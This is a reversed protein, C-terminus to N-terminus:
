LCLLSCQLELDKFNEGTTTGVRGLPSVRGVCRCSHGIPRMLPVSGKLKGSGSKQTKQRTGITRLDYTVNVTIRCKVETPRSIQQNLIAAFSFCMNYIRRLKMEHTAMGAQPSVGPGNPALSHTFFESLSQQLQM